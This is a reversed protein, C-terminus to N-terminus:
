APLARAAAHLRDVVARSEEVWRPVSVAAELGRGDLLVEHMRPDAARLRRSYDDIDVFVPLSAPSDLYRRPELGAFYRFPESVREEILRLVVSDLIAVFFGIGCPLASQFAAQYLAISVLGESGGGRYDAAVALTAIDWVRAPDVDAGSRAFATAADTGWCREMDVLSKQGAPTPLIMRMVGAPVLRRHDVVCLFLSTREYPGYEAALLEETNGFYELFVDREVSRGLEAAPDDGGIVYCGFPQEPQGRGAVLAEALERRALDM